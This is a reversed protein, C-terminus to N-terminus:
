RTTQRRCQDFQCEDITTIDRKDVASFQRVPSLNFARFTQVDCTEASMTLKEGIVQLLMNQKGDCM